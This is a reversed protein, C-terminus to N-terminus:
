DYSHHYHRCALLASGSLPVHHLGEVRLDLRRAAILRAAQRLGWWGPAASVARCAPPQAPAALITAAAASQGAVLHGADGAGRRALAGGAGGALAGRQPQAGHRLRRQRRLRRLPALDAARRSACGRALATPGP